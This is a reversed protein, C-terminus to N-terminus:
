RRKEILLDALARKAAGRVSANALESQCSQGLKNQPRDVYLVYQKKKEKSKLKNHPRDV